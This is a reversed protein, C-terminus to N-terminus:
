TLVDLDLGLSYLAFFADSDAEDVVDDNNLDAASDEDGYFTLFNNIDSSDLDFDQDYDGLILLERFNSNAADLTFVLIMYDAGNVLGDGTADGQAFTKASGNYHTLLISIDSSDVDGDRNFDTRNVAFVFEFDGGAIGNGSPFESTIVSSLISGPNTWEGDLANGEHDLISDALRLLYQADPLGAIWTATYNNSSSPEEILTPPPVTLVRNLSILELDGSAIAIDKTFQIAIRNAGGVPLTRLQEESGVNPETGFIADFEYPPNTGYSNAVTSSITVNLIRPVSYEVAGVDVIGGTGSINPADFYRAYGRQDQTLEADEAKQDSGHDIAPSTVLLAHTRTPGDYFDLSRLGPDSVNLQNTSGSLGGNSGTGILNFSGSSDVSSALNYTGTVGATNAAVVTNHLVITANSSTNSIGGGQQSATNYAITSNVVEVIPTGNTLVAGGFGSANGSFTSNHITVTPAPSSFSYVYLGGGRDTGSGGAFTENLLLSSSIISLQGSGNHYIGGGKTAENAEITSATITLYGGNNYIGGGSGSAENEFLTVGNLALTGSNYVGGGNSSSVLGGTIGLGSINATVGSNVTFARGAGNADITLSSSGPGIIDVDSGVTLQSGLSIQDVWPAFMIEDTGPHLTNNAALTLAERLSLTAALMGDEDGESTVKLIPSITWEMSDTMYQARAGDDRVMDTNDTVVVEITYATGYTLSLSATPLTHGTAWSIPSGNLYWQVSLDNEAPQMPTVSLVQGYHYEGAPTSSDIPRM